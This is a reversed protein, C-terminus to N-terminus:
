IVLVIVETRGDPFTVSIKGGAVVHRMLLAAVRLAFRLAAAATSPQPLLARLESVLKRDAITFRTGLRKMEEIRNKIM